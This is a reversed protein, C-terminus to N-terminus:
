SAKPEIGWNEHGKVALAILIEMLHSRRNVCATSDNFKIRKEFQSRM